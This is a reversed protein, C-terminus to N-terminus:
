TRKLNSSEYVFSMFLSVQFDFPIGKRYTSGFSTNEPVSVCKCFGCRHRGWVAEVPWEPGGYLAQQKNMYSYVGNEAAGSVVVAAVNGALM